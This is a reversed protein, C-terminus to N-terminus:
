QFPPVEIMEGCSMCEVEMWGSPKDDVVELEDSQCIHCSGVVEKEYPTMTQSQGNSRNLDWDMLALTTEMEDQKQPPRHSIPAIYDSGDKNYIAPQRTTPRHRLEFVQHEPHRLMFLRSCLPTFHENLKTPERGRDIFTESLDEKMEHWIARASLRKAGRAIKDLSKMEFLEYVFSNATM